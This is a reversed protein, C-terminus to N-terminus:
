WDRWDNKAAEEIISDITHKWHTRQTDFLSDFMACCLISNKPRRAPQSYAESSIPSVHKAEIGPYNWDRARNFVYKSLQFWSVPEGDDSLHIVQCPEEGLRKASAVEIAAQALLKSSTPRGIQDDIIQLTPRELGLRLITKVFNNGSDGMVWSTRFIAGSCTAQSLCLSESLRKTIGYYNCPSCIDNEIYPGRKLGDFVYDTSFHVIRSGITKCASTIIEVADVNVARTTAQDTEAQDVKTYAAANIVVAPENKLLFDSFDTLNKDLRHDSLLLGPLRKFVESGVQGTHGTLLTPGLKENAIM